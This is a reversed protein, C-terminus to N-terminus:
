CATAAEGRTSVTDQYTYITWSPDGTDPKEPSVVDDEYGGQFRTQKATAATDPNIHNKLDVETALVRLDYDTTVKVGEDVETIDDFPDKGETMRHLTPVKGDHLEQDNDASDDEQGVSSGRNKDHSTQTRLVEDPPVTDTAPGKINM